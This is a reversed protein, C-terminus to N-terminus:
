SHFLIRGLPKDDWAADGDANDSSSITSDIVVPVGAATEAQMDVEVTSKVQAKPFIITMYYTPTGPFQYVAEMRVYEPSTRGGLAIEGTHVDDYSGDTPDIGFALALNYPKIEEFTGELSANDRIAISYDRKLPFGSEHDYWDTSGVFKTATLSGISDSSTLQPEIEAINTSSDGIRIQALGLALASTEVTVPGAM